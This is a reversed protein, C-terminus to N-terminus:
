NTAWRKWAGLGAVAATERTPQPPHPTRAGDALWWTWGTRRTGSYAPEVVVLVLDGAVVHWRRDERWSPAKVLVAADIVARAKAPSLRTV